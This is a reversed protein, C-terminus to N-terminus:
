CLSLNDLAPGHLLSIDTGPWIVDDHSSHAGFQSDPPEARFETAGKFLIDKFLDRLKKAETEEDPPYYISGCKVLM